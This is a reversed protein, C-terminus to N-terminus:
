KVPSGKGIMSKPIEFQLKGSGEFASAPLELRLYGAADVPAEFVIPDILPKSPYLATDRAMGNIPATKSFDYRRYDNGHNDTLLPLDM